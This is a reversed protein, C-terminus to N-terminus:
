AFQKRFRWTGIGFLTGGLATMALVPQWLIQLGAGKLLIGHTIEIFYRLPSLAMLNRVWAPMAELPTTIGSLLLMPAVVLLTMMGVQAQNRTVTAAFLGMGATSFVFLVTLAFFLPVSGKVPVGFVPRMVGFLAVAVACLIVATMALVKSLMIQMPTLPSVMLQEVTGREKERVLAAAPLLMAFITIMRLLHSISEFWTENQDQNYWVRHDSAIVPLNPESGDPAGIRALAAEQGYQGVIRAAYGAASLGQPSNTTDVLLQLAVPEGALLSEQFRAPIDLLVMSRGRDLRQFGEDPNAIEGDFRFYPAHFRHILERSSLSHDADFVLLGANRLQTQIGSGTIYVSLTFSYLLFGMLPIDRFLQWLEKRTMVALRRWWLAARRVPIAGPGSM